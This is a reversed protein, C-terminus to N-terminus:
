AVDDAVDGFVRREILLMKEAAVIAEAYKGQNQLDSSEKNYRDREALLRIREVDASAGAKGAPLPDAALAATSVLFTCAASM